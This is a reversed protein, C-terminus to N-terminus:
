EAADALRVPKRPLMADRTATHHAFTAMVAAAQELDEAVLHDYTDMSTHWTQTGYALPDQIFQFGPIGAADFALHDTGTTNSITLTQADPDGFADLWARFVPQVGPNSQLYVGRIRGSGNDLNFYASVKAQDPKLATAPQGYGPVEAYHANVYGISGYLGQEEGTWLAFRITRRPRTGSADYYAALVRAAEMVVSSGSANDTAGSGTHWSDVHAGLIVVEDALDTGRIEAIVNDEPEPARWSVGFDLTVSVDQGAQALRMLRNAHEDLLVIQPVTEAGVAWPTPRAGFATGEPVPVQAATARIAGHGGTNSPELIALPREAFLANRRRQAARYRAIAEPSYRRGGAAVGLAANAMELLEAHTRREAIPELGVSVSSGSTLLVVKGGLTGAAADMAAEDAPDLVVLEATVRGTGPSWAKPAAYVPFTQPAVDPGTATASVAFHGLEWGRGFDGWPELEANLGWSEFREVAWNQAADLQPSGTLRSGHVDTLWLAHDMVRGREMAEAKIFSIASTDAAEGPLEVPQASAPAAALVLALLISRM